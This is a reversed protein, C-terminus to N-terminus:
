RLGSAGPKTVRKAIAKADGRPLGSATALQWVGCREDMRADQRPANPVRTRLAIADDAAVGEILRADYRVNVDGGTLVASSRLLAPRVEVCAPYYTTGDLEITSPCSAAGEASEPALQVTTCGEDVTRNCAGGFLGATFALLIVNAPLWARHESM